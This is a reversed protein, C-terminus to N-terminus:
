FFLEFLIPGFGIDKANCLKPENLHRAFFRPAADTVGQLCRTRIAIAHPAYEGRFGDYEFHALREDFEKILLGAGVVKELYVRGDGRENFIMAM